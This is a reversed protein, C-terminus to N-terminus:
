FSETISENSIHENLSLFMLFIELSMIEKM